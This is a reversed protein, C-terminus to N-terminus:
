WGEPLLAPMARAQSTWHEVLQFKPLEKVRHEAKNVEKMADLLATADSKGLAQVTKLDCRWLLEAWQGGVGPVRLFDAMTAWNRVTGDDLNDAAKAVKSRGEPTLCTTILTATDSVGIERLRSGFGAGIGEIEEIPFGPITAAPRSSALRTQLDALAKQCALHRLVWGLLFGLVFAALLCWFIQNVLYAM